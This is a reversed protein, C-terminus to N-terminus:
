QLVEKSKKRETIWISFIVSTAVSVFDLKQKVAPSFMSTEAITIWSLFLLVFYLVFNYLLLAKQTEQKKM